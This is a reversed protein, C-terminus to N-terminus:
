MKTYTAIYVHVLHTHQPRLCPIFFPTHSTKKKEM